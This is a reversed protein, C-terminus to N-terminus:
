GRRNWFRDYAEESAYEEVRTCIWPKLSDCPQPCGSCMSSAVLFYARLELRSLLRRNLEQRDM